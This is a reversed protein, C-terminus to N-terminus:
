STYPMDDNYYCKLAYAMPCIKFEYGFSRDWSLLVYFLTLMCVYTLKIFYYLLVYMSVYYRASRGYFGIRNAKRWYSRALHALTSCESKSCRKGNKRCTNQIYIHEAM